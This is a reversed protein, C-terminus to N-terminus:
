SCDGLSFLLDELALLHNININHSIKKLIHNIKTIQEFLLVPNLLAKLRMLADYSQSQATGADITLYLVQSYVLYLFWLLNNLEYQSWQSALICPDQRKEILAILEAILSDAQKALLARESDEPYAEALSLLNHLSNDNESSFHMIQCRSLITPLITALQEAILIFHTNQSPEELIKLLANSSSSNLREAAEIVILKYTSRQPALFAAQQLARIQEVKIASGAKEPKIWSLDPHEIRQVMQCDACQGCPEAQMAKKCHLMQAINLAFDALHHHPPGVCLLAQPFRQNKLATQVIQWQTFHKADM